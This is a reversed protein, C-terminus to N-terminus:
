ILDLQDANKAIPRQMIVADEDPNFYYDKRVAIKEFGYITYLNIAAENGERVELTVKDTNMFELSTIFHEMLKGGYGQRRMDPDVAIRPLEADGSNESFILYGALKERGQFVFDDATSGDDFVAVLHNHEHKFTEELSAESWADSFYAKEIRAIESIISM